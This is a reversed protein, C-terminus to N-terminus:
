FHGVLQDHDELLNFSKGKLQTLTNLGSLALDASLCKKRSKRKQGAKWISATSINGVKIQFIGTQVGILIGRRWCFQTLGKM